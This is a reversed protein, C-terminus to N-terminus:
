ETSVVEEEEDGKQTVKEMLSELPYGVLTVEHFAWDADRMMQIEFHYSPILDFCLNSIEYMEKFSRFCAFSLVPRDRKITEMGGKVIEMGNEKVDVKIM